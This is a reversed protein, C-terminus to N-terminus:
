SIGLKFALSFYSFFNGKQNHTDGNWAQGFAFPHQAEAAAEGLGVMGDTSYLRFGYFKNRSLSAPSLDFRIWRSSDNTDMKVRSESITTGWNRTAPDFEHFTLAVEGPTTVAASYVQINDLTGDSPCSFTQGGFHETSEAPLHGIWLTTNNETQSLVPNSSNPVTKM